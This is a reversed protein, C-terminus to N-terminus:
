IDLEHLCHRAAVSFALFTQFRPNVRDYKTTLYSIHKELILHVQVDFPGLKTHVMFNSPTELYQLANM